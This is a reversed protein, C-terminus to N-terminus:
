ASPGAPEPPNQAVLNEDGINVGGVFGTRGDVILLKKHTRLVDAHQDVADAAAVEERPDV